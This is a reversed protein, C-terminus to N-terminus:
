CLNRFSYVRFRICAEPADVDNRREPGDARYIRREQHTQRMERNENVNIYLIRFRIFASVFVRAGSADVSNRREPGGARYIRRAQRTQRM